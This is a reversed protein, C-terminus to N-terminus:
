ENHSEPVSFRIIVSAGGVNNLTVTGNIQDMLSKVLILGLRTNDGQLINEPYGIGTDSVTLTYNREEIDLTITIEGGSEPFAYKLSNTLLENLTLGIPILKNM